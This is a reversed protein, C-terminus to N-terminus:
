KGFHPVIRNVDLSSFFPHRERKLRHLVKLQTKHIFPALCFAGIIRNGKQVKFFFFILRWLTIILCIHRHGYSARVAFFGLFFGWAIFPIISKSAESRAPFQPENMYSVPRQPVNDPTVPTELVWRDKFDLINVDAM